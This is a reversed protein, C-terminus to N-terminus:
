RPYDAEAERRRNSQLDLMHPHLLLQLHVERCLNSLQVRGGFRAVGLSTLNPNLLILSGSSM